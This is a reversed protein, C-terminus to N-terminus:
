AHPHAIIVFGGDGKACCMDANSAASKTIAGSLMADKDELSIWTKRCRKAATMIGVSIIDQSKRNKM